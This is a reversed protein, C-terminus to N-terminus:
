RAPCSPTARASAKIACPCTSSVLSAPMSVSVPM